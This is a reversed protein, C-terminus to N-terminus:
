PAARGWRHIRFGIWCGAFLVLTSYSFASITILMVHQEVDSWKFLYEAWPEPWIWPWDGRWLSHGCYVISFSASILLMLTVMLARLLFIM